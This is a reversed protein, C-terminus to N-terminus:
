LFKTCMASTGRMEDEFLRTVYQSSFLNCIEKNYLKDAAVHFEGEGEGRLNV